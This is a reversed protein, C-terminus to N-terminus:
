PSAVPRGLWARHEGEEHLQPREARATILALVRLVGVGSGLIECLSAGRNVILVRVHCQYLQAARRMRARTHTHTGRSVPTCVYASLRGRAERCTIRVSRAWPPVVRATSLARQGDVPLAVSELPMDLLFPVSADTHPAAEAMSTWAEKPQCEASLSASAFVLGLSRRSAADRMCVTRWRSLHTVNRPTLQVGSSVTSYAGKGM